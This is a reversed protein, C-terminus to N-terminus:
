LSFPVDAIQNFIFLFTNKSTPFRITSVHSNSYLLNKGIHNENM